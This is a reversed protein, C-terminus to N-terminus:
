FMTQHLAIPVTGPFFFSWGFRHQKELHYKTIVYNLEKSEIAIRIRRWWELIQDRRSKEYYDVDSQLEPMKKLIANLKMIFEVPEPGFLFHAM